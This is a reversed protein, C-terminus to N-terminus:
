QGQPAYGRGNYVSSSGSSTSSVSNGGGSYSPRYSSTSGGGYYRSGGGSYSSGGGTSRSSGTSTSSGGNGGGNSNNSRNSRNSRSSNNGNSSSSRSSSARSSSSSSESSSNSSESSKSSKAKKNHVVLHKVVETGDAKTIEVDYKGADSLKVVKTYSTSKAKMVKYVNGTRHGLIRVKTRKPITFTIKAEDDGDLRITTPEWSVKGSTAASKNSVQYSDDPKASQKQQGGFASPNVATYIAGGVGVIILLLLVWNVFVRFSGLPRNNGNRLRHIQVLYLIIFLVFAAVAVGIFINHM